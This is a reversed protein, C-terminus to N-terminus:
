GMLKDWKNGKTAAFFEDDDLDLLNQLSPPVTPKSNSSSRSREMGKQITNLDPGSQLPRKVPQNQQIIDALSDEDDDQAALASNFGRLKALEYVIEAPNKNFQAAAQIIKMTEQAIYQDTVEPSAGAIVAERRWQDVIHTRADSYDPNTQSFESEAKAVVAQVQSM